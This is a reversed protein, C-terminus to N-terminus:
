QCNMEVFLLGRVGLSSIKGKKYTSNKQVPKTITNIYRVIHIFPHNINQM